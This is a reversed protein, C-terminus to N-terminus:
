RMHEDAGGATRKRILRRDGIGRQTRLIERDRYTNFVSLLRNMNPTREGSKRM